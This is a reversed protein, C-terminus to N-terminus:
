DDDEVENEEVENEIEHVDVVDNTEVAHELNEHELGEHEETEFSSSENSDQTKIEELVAEANSSETISILKLMAEMREEEQLKIVEKKFRNMIEFREEDSVTQMSEILDDIDSFLPSSFLLLILILQKM